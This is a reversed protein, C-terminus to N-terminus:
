EKLWELIRNNKPGVIPAISEVVQGNKDILFKQYNWTVKADLVGNESSKTLWNYIPHISDGKISIKEM